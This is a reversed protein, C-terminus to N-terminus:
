ELVAKAKERVAKPGTHEPPERLTYIDLVSTATAVVIPGLVVGLLGFVSIGGLVSIFVVLGSLRARGSILWPRVVNDVVGVVGACLAIVLIGRGVSGHFMLGVAAPVWIIASGVLPLLSCFGMVVGWFIPTGIGAIAFASGGVVGNVAAAVLSSTVSAFILGHAESIMRERQREEFPLAQRLRALVSDADRFLYSMALLMVVLDFLFGAVNRVVTSLEGALFGALREGAQRLVTGLDGPTEGPVHRQVWAWANNAWALHGAALAQEGWRAAALGQRVFATMVFIMPVVLILTVAMTSTAAAWTRGLRRELREHWPYFVVVLVAAWALPVLFPEFVRFALYALIIVIGYFLVAGLRAQSNPETTM